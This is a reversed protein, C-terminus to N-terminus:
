FVLGMKEASPFAADDAFGFCSQQFGKQRRKFDGFLGCKVSVSQEACRNPFDAKFDAEAIAFMQGSLGFVIRLGTVDAGLNKLVANGIEKGKEGADFYGCVQRFGDAEFGSSNVIDANPVIVYTQEKFM